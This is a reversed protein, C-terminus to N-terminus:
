EPINLGRLFGDWGHFGITVANDRDAHDGRHHCERTGMCLALQASLLSRRALEVDGFGLALGLDLVAVLDIGRPLGGGEVGRSGDDLGLGARVVGEDIGVAGAEENVFVRAHLDAAEHLLRELGVAVAVEVRRVLGRDGV